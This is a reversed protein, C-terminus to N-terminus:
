RQCAVELECFLDSESLISLIRGALGRSVNLSAGCAPLATDMTRKSTVLMLETKNDHFIPTTTLIDIKSVFTAPEFRLM